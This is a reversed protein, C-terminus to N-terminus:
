HSPHSQDLRNLLFASLRSQQKERCVANKAKVLLLPSLDPGSPPEFLAVEHSAYLDLVAWLRCEYYRKDAAACGTFGSKLTLRLSLAGLLFRPAFDM